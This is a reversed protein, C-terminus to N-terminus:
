GKIYQQWIETDASLASLSGGLIIIIAALVFVMGLMKRTGFQKPGKEAFKRFGRIAYPFLLLFYPMTYQGKAEWVIHFLFGGIFITALTIDKINADDNIWFFLLAGVFVLMMFADLYGYARDTGKNSMIDVILNSQEIDTDCVQNVWYAEFTPNNWQSALKTLFFERAYAPNSVFEKCRTTVEHIAQDKQTNGADNVYTEYNYNNFWGNARPGEQLGMAMYAWSSIATGDSVGTIKQEIMVPGKLSLLLVIALATLYCIKAGKIEKLCEFLAYILMGIVFIMSNAKAFVAVVSLLLSILAYAKNGGDFFRIEYDLAAIAFALSLITGYIFTAYMVLPYFLIGLITVAKSLKGDGWLHTCIDGLKKYLLVIALVNLIQFPLVNAYGFPISWLYYILVLGFQQPNKMFYGGDMFLSYDGTRLGKTGAYIAMQDSRPTYRTMIVWLLSVGFIVLLLIFRGKGNDAERRDVIKHMSSFVVSFIIVIFVNKLLSDDVFYTKESIDTALKCTSLVSVICLFSLLVRMNIFVIKKYITSFFNYFVM